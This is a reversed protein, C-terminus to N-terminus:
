TSVFFTNFDGFHELLKKSEEETGTLHESSYTIFLSIQTDHNVASNDFALAGASKSQSQAKFLSKIVQFINM